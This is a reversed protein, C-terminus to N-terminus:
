GIATETDAPGPPIVEEGGNIREMYRPYLELFERVLAARGYVKRLANLTIPNLAQHFSELRTDMDVEGGGFPQPIAKDIEEKDRLGAQVVMEGVEENYENLNM